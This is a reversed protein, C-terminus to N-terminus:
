MGELGRKTGEVDRLLGGTRLYDIICDGVLSHEGGVNKLVREELAEVGEMGELVEEVGEKAGM